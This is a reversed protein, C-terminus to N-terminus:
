ESVNAPRGRKRRMRGKHLKMRRAFSASGLVRSRKEGAMWEDDATSILIDGYQKRERSSLRKEFVHGNLDTVEDNTGNVYYGASSWRYDWATKVIGARVRYREGSNLWRHECLNLWQSTAHPPPDEREM